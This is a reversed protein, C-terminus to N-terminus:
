FGPGGQFVLLLRSQSLSTAVEWSKWYAFWCLSDTFTNIKGYTLWCFLRGTSAKRLEQYVWMYIHVDLHLALSGLKFASKGSPKKQLCSNCFRESAYIFFPSVYEGLFSRVLRFSNSFSEYKCILIDIEWIRRDTLTFPSILWIYCTKKKKEAQEQLSAENESTTIDFLLAGCASQACVWCSAKRHTKM